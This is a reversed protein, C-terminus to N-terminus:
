CDEEPANTKKSKIKALAGAKKDTYPLIFFRYSDNM